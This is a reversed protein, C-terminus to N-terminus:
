VLSSCSLLAPKQSAGTHEPTHVAHEAHWLSRVCGTRLQGSLIWHMLLGTAWGLTALQAGQALRTGCALCKPLCLHAKVQRPEVQGNSILSWDSTGESLSRVEQCSPGGRAALKVAPTSYITHNVQAGPVSTHDVPASRNNGGAPTPPASSPSVHTTCLFSLVGAETVGLLM